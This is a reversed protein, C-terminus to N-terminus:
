VRKIKRLNIIARNTLVGSHNVTSLASGSSGEDEMENYAIQMSDIARILHAEASRLASSAGRIVPNKRRTRRTKNM